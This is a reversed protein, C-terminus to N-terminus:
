SRRRWVRRNRSDNVTLGKEKLDDSVCDMWRRRPRGRKRRGEVEMSMARRGVYGDERRMVHGYWKLRREQVKASIDRVKAIERIRENRVRDVKSIGCMWRLMRMEVLNLKREHAKKVSWTEAGYLMAPRVVTNYVKGKVRGSIKKDCLVGSVKKWNRWGAQVRHTMEAELGGDESVTSGLYRFNPVTNLTQGQLTIKSDQDDNLKLYETKKRNIKLGRDEIAKRWEELKWELEERSNNCLVIDDAFLMCWPAQDKVDQILVDMVLDFLYPSLSSGQHLGVNVSFKETLGVSSRVKTHAGEYMDQVIRIYKELVGKERMCRWLEQRPVRDYAKELDIFVM